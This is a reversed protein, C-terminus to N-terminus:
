KMENKSRSDYMRIFSFSLDPEDDHCSSKGLSFILGLLIRLFLKLLDTGMISVFTFYSCHVQLNGSHSKTM